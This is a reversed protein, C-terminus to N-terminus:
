GFPRCGMPAAPGDGTDILRLPSRRDGDPDNAHQCGNGRTTPLRRGAIMCDVAM